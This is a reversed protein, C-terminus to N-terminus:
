MLSLRNNHSHSNLIPPKMYKISKIKEENIKMFRKKCRKCIYDQDPRELEELTKEFSSFSVTTLKKFYVGVEIGCLVIGNNDKLHKKSM